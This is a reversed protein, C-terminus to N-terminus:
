NAAFLFWGLGKQNQPFTFNGVSRVVRSGAQVAADKARGNCVSRNHLIKTGKTRFIIRPDIKKEHTFLIFFRNLCYPTLYNISKM